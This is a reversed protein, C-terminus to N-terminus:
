MRTGSRLVRGVAITRGDGVAEPPDRRKHNRYQGYLMWEKKEREASPPWSACARTKDLLDARPM